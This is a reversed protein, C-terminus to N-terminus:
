VADVDQPTSIKFLGYLMLGFILIGVLIASIEGPGVLPRPHCTYTGPAVLPVSDPSCNYFTRSLLGECCYFTNCQINQAHGSPLDKGDPLTCGMTSTKCAMATCIPVLSSNDPNHICLCENCGDSWSSGLPVPLGLFATCNDENGEITGLLNLYIVWCLAFTMGKM